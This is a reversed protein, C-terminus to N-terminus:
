QSINKTGLRRISIFIGYGLGVILLITLGSDIPLELDPPPCCEPNPAPPGTESAGSQCLVITSTLLFIAIPAMAKIYKVMQFRM